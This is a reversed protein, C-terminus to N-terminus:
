PTEGLYPFAYSFLWVFLLGHALTTAGISPRKRGYFLACATLLVLGASASATVQVFGRGEYQVGLRWGSAFWWVSGAAIVVALVLTRVPITSNGRAIRFCWLGCLFGAMPPLLLPPVGLFGPIALLFPAPALITPSGMTPLLGLSVTAAGATLLAALVV